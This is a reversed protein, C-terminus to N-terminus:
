FLFYALARTDSLPITRGHEQGALRMLRRAYARWLRAHQRPDYTAAYQSCHADVFYYSQGPTLSLLGFSALVHDPVSFAAFAEKPTQNM